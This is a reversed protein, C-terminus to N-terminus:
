QAEVGVSKFIPGYFAIDDRIRRVEAIDAGGPDGVRWDLHRSRTPIEVDGVSRGMTIVVDAGTVCARPTASAIAGTKTLSRERGRTRNYVRVAFGAAMLNEALASGLLGMGVLAIVESM